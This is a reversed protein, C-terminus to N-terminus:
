AAYDYRRCPFIVVRPRRRKPAPRTCTQRPPVAAGRYCRPQPPQQGSANLAQQLQELQASPLDEETTNNIRSAADGGFSRRGHLVDELGCPYTVRRKSRFATYQLPATHGPARRTRGLFFTEHQTNSFFLFFSRLKTNRKHTLKTNPTLMVRIRCFGSEPNRIGSEADVACTRRGPVMSDFGLITFM